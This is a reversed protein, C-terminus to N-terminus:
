PEVVLKGFVGREAMERFAEGTEALPYIGGVVPDLEGDAVLSVLTELEPQTGM